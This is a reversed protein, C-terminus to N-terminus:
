NGGEGRYALEPKRKRGACRLIQGKKMRTTKRRVGEEPEMCSICIVGKIIGEQQGVVVCVNKCVTIRKGVGFM